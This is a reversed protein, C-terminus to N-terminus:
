IREIDHTFLSVLLLQVYSMVKFRIWLVYTLGMKKKKKKNQCTWMLPPLLIQVLSRQKM